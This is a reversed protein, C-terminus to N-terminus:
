RDGAVNEYTHFGRGAHRGLRGERIYAEFLPCPRYREGLAEAMGSLGHYVEEVGIQDAWELPGRPYNTGLKMATDIDQPTAVGEELAYAAENIISFVIRALVLGPADPVQVVRKGLREWFVRAAELSDARTKPAAALEMVQAGKLPPVLGIGVVRGPDVCWSAARVASIGSCCTLIPAPAPLPRDLAQLLAQKEQASGTFCDVALAAGRAGNRLDSVIYVGDLSGGPSDWISPRGEDMPSPSDVPYVKVQRGTGAIVRALDMAVAARGVVLVPLNPDNTNM